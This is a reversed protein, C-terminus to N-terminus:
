LSGKPPSYSHDRSSFENELSLQNSIMEKADILPKTKVSEPDISEALLLYRKALDLKESAYIEKSFRISLESIRWFTADFELLKLGYGINKAYNFM